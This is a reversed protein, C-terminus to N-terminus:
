DQADRTLHEIRVVLDEEHVAIFTPGHVVHSGDGSVRLDDTSVVEQENPMKALNQLGERLRANETELEAARALAAAVDSEAIMYASSTRDLPERRVLTTEEGKARRKERAALWLGLRIIYDAPDAGPM